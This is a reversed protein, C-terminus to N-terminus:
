RNAGKKGNHTFHQVFADPGPFFLAIHGTDSWQVVFPPEGKKGKVELIEADRDPEGIHHGKIVLRDGKTAQM